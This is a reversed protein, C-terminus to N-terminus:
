FLSLQHYEYDSRYAKIIDEMRYLLGLKKCEETFIHSLERYRPSHCVYDSGYRNIYTEKLRRGPFYQELKQYLYEQQGNRMTLGFFPYVFRAGCSKAQHLITLVNDPTDTLDPLLPMMLVGTFIGASSLKQVAEMRKTTAHVGPELKRSLEDESATVTIKCIVPSHAKIRTLQDIDRAILSSKTTIAVGFHYTDILELAQRTLEYREEFPNYPDSMSGTGIVGTKTKRRLEERIINLANEKARVTDFDTLQYCDSRSDCYICGHCCGKYINMTYDIGFWATDKKGSIITKAPITNM